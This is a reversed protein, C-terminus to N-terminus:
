VLLLGLKSTFIGGNLGIRRWVYDSVRGFVVDKFPVVDEGTGWVGGVHVTLVPAREEERGGIRESWGRDTHM